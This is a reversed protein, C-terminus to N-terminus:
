KGSFDALEKELAAREQPSMEGSVNVDSGPQPASQDM